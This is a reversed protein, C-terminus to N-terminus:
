TLTIVEYEDASVHQETGACDKYDISVTKVIGPAPDTIESLLTTSTVDFIGGPNKDNRFLFSLHGANVVDRVNSTVDAFGTECDTHTVAAVERNQKDNSPIEDWYSYQEDSWASWMSSHDWERECEQHCHRDWWPGTCVLRCDNDWHGRVRYETHAPADTIVLCEGYTAHVIERQCVAPVDGSIAHGLIEDLYIRGHNICSFRISEPQGGNGDPITLTYNGRAIDKIDFTGDHDIPIIQVIGPAEDNTFQIQTTLTNYGCRVNADQIYCSNESAYVAPSNAPNMDRYKNDTGTKDSHVVTAGDIYNAYDEENGFYKENHWIGEASVPLVLMTLLLLAGIILLKKM